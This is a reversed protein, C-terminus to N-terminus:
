ITTLWRRFLKPPTSDTMKRSSVMTKLSVALASHNWPKQRQKATSNLRNLKTEEKARDVPDVFTAVFSVVFFWLKPLM